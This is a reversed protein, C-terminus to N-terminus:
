SRGRLFVYIQNLYSEWVQTTLQLTEASPVFDEVRLGRNSIAQPTQLLYFPINVSGSNLMGAGVVDSAINSSIGLPLSAVLVPPPLMTAIPTRVLFYAIAPTSSFLLIALSWGLLYGGPKEIGGGKIRQAAIILLLASAGLPKLPFSIFRWLSAVVPEGPNFFALALVSIILGVVIRGVFNVTPYFKQFLSYAIVGILLWLLVRSLLQFM